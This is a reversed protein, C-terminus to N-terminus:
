SIAPPPPSVGGQKYFTAAALRDSMKKAREYDDPTGIDIFMGRQEIAYFGQDMLLPFVDRELSVPGHPILALAANPNPVGRQSLPRPVCGSGCRVLRLQLHEIDVM